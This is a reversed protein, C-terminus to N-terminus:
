ENHLADIPNLLSAKRAPVVGFILGILTSISVAVALMTKTFLPPINVFRGIALAGGIGLSIGLLGGIVTLIIAEVMFQGLIENNTAGLAKRIGIEKIRETVSVLMINMVGIGGVLLSIGAVATIFITLTNLISEFSSTNNTSTNFEYIGSINKEEMIRRAMVMAENMEEPNRSKVEISDYDDISLLRELTNLPVRGFSPFFRGRGFISSMTALPNQFTGVVYFNFSKSNSGYTSIIVSKGIPSEDGFLSEATMNDIVIYKGYDEYEMPLFDRGKMYTIPSIKEYDPNTGSLNMRSRKEGYRITLRTSYEASVAEFEGSEKLERIDSSDLSYKGRYDDSERDVSITFNGYGTRRMEGTIKAQGGAGLSSMIIVSSIGIIIGLMTLLARSKNSVLSHFAASLNELFNM